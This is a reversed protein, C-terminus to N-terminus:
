QSATYSATYFGTKIIVFAHFIRSTIKEDFTYITYYYKKLQNVELLYQLGQIVHFYNKSKIGSKV